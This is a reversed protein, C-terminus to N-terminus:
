AVKAQDPPQIARKRRAPPHGKWRRHVWWYQEPAELIMEGLRDNYWRTLAPVSALQPDWEKPDAVGVVCIEFRMPKGTRRLYSVLQPAGSSLTFLAVAKHCSAPRGLFDVWCGKEGAHQDGLLSLTGGARLVADVQPACGQKPLISQGASARFRNIYRDLFPNDLQRAITTSPFGFMGMVYGAVEFNGYHGTVLVVPRPDLMYELLLPKNVFEVYSRFSTQHIKRRAQAAEAVMLFLHEWSLRIFRRRRAADWQPFVHRVNDEIVAYRLRTVDCAVFALLKAIAHCTEIRLTQIICIFVRVLAYVLWDRLSRLLM